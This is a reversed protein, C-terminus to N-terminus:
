RGAGRTRGRPVGRPRERQDGRDPGLRRARPRAIASRVHKVYPCHRCLFMVLLARDDFDALSVTLGLFHDTLAFDPARTGLPLMTSTIAMGSMSRGPSSPLGAPM